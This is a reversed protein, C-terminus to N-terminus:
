SLEGNYRFDKDYKLYKKNTSDPSSGCYHCDGEILDFFQKKSLRFPRNVERACRKYVDLLNLKLSENDPRRIHYQPGKHACGCSKVKGTKLYYPSVLNHNGCECNCAWRKEKKDYHDVTLKGFKDGFKM